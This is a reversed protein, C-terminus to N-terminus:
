LTGKGVGSPGVIIFPKHTKSSAEIGRQQCRLAENSQVLQNVKSEGNESAKLLLLQPVSIHMHSMCSVQKANFQMGSEALIGFKEMTMFVDVACEEPTKNGTEVVIEPSKPAEYPDSIGTFNKIIGERAKKYLGKVDRSECCELNAAIHCEIFPM